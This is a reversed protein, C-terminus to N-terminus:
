TKKDNMFNHYLVDGSKNYVDGSLVATEYIERMVKEPANSGVKLLGHKKLYLKIDALKKKKLNDHEKKIKRRTKRSKILIGVKGKRKGLTYRKLRRKRTLSPKRLKRKLRELKKQRVLPEKATNEDKIPTSFKISPGRDKNRLTRRYESYLPKKGGKLIGYPPDDKTTIKTHISPPTEVGGKQATQVNRAAVRKKRRRKKRNSKLTKKKDVVQNLYSLTDKFGGAFNTAAEEEEKKSKENDKIAKQHLAVREMLAQKMKNPTM